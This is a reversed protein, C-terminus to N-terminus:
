FKKFRKADEPVEPQHDIFFCTSNVNQIVAVMAFMNMTMVLWNQRKVKEMISILEKRM